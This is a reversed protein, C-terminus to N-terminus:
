SYKRIQRSAFRVLFDFRNTPLQLAGNASSQKYNKNMTTYEEISSKLEYPQNNSMVELFRQKRSRRFQTQRAKHLEKLHNEIYKIRM